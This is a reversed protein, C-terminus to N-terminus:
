LTPVPGGATDSALREGLWAVDDVTIMDIWRAAAWRRLKSLSSETGSDAEAMPCYCSIAFGAAHLAQIDDDAMAPAQVSVGDLDASRALGVLDAPRGYLIGMTSVGPLTRKLAALQRHDFSCLVIPATSPEDITNRLAAFLADDQHWDKLEVRLVLGIEKAMAIAAALSPIPEGAYEPSFRLGADRRRLAALTQAAVPGTGDTTRDLTADHMLVLGGDATLRIDIECAAAGHARARRLAALTNEPAHRMDGRHGCIRIPQAPQLRLDTM